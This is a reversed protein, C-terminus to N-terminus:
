HQRSDWDSVADNALGFLDVHGHAYAAAVAGGGSGSDVTEPLAPSSGAAPTESASVLPVAPKLPLATSPRGNVPTIM